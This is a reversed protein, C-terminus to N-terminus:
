VSLSTQERNQRDHKTTQWVLSPALDWSKTVVTYVVSHLAWDSQWYNTTPGSHLEFIRQL